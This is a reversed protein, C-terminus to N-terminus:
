NGYLLALWDIGEQGVKSDRRYWLSLRLAFFCWVAWCLVLRGSNEGGFFSLGMWFSGWMEFGLFVGGGIWVSLTARGV